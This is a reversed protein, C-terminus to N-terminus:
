SYCVIINALYGIYLRKVCLASYELNKQSKFHALDELIVSIKRTTQLMNIKNQINLTKVIIYYPPNRKQDQDRHHETYNKQM